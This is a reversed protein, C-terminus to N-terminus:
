AIQNKQYMATTSENLPLKKCNRVSIIIIRAILFIGSLILLGLTFGGILKDDNFINVLIGTLGIILTVYASFTYEAYKQIVFNELMFWTIALFGLLSLSILSAVKTSTGIYYAFVVATNILTAITTWTGYFLLGNQVLFRQSWIDVKGQSYVKQDDLFVRLDYCAFAIAADLFIQGLLIIVFSIVGEARAWTFLWAIVTLINAIFAIFFKNQLINTAPGSRFVTSVTYLIWIVQWAFIAGWISFTAGVPTIELHFRKSINSVTNPFLKNRPGGRASLANFVLHIIYIALTLFILVKTSIKMGNM